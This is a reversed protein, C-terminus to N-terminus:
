GKTKSAAPTLPERLPAFACLLTFPKVRLRPPASSFPKATFGSECQITSAQSSEFPRRGAVAGKRRQAEAHVEKNM